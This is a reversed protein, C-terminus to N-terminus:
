ILNYWSYEVTFMITGQCINSLDSNCRICDRKTTSLLETSYMLSQKAEDHSWSNEFCQMAFHVTMVTTNGNATYNALLSVSRYTGQVDGSAICTFHLDLLNVYYIGSTSSLLQSLEDRIEDRHPLAIACSQASAKQMLVSSTVSLLFVALASM